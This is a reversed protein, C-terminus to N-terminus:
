GPKIKGLESKPRVSIPAPTLALLSLTSIPSKLVLIREMVAYLASELTILIRFPFPMKSLLTAGSPPIIEPEEETTCSSAQFQSSAAYLISAPM